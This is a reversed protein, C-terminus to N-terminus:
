GRRKRFFLRLQKVYDQNTYLKIMNPINIKEIQIPNKAMNSLMVQEGTESDKFHYIANQPLHSELPDIIHIPIVDHKYALMKLERDYDTDMFDSIVFVISRKKEIKQFFSLANKLSTGKHQAKYDIINEIISLVHKRGNKSPIVKEVQDTFLVLGIKDNNKNASFALTAGLEAIYERKGAFQNSMSADILLYINLEREECFQKVYTTDYKATSNWDIHRVDDGHYYARIDEFTMGKGKFSSHYAGSFIEDVMRNSKIEIHRIKKILEKSIMEKNGKM